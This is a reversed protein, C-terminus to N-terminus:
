KGFQAAIAQWAPGSAVVAGLLIWRFQQLSRVELKLQTVEAPIVSAKNETVLENVAKTLARVEAYVEQPTIVIAGEPIDPM